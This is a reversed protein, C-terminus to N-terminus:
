PLLNVIYFGGPLLDRIILLDRLAAYGEHDGAIPLGQHISDIASSLTSHPPLEDYRSKSMAERRMAEENALEAVIIRQVEENGAVIQRAVDAPDRGPALKRKIEFCAAAVETVEDIAAQVADVNSDVATEELAILADEVASWAARYATTGIDDPSSLRPLVTDRLLSTSRYGHGHKLEAKGEAILDVLVARLEAQQETTLGLKNRLDGFAIYAYPRYPPLAALVTNKDIATTTM